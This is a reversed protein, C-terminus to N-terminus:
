IHCHTYTARVPQGRNFAPCLPLASQCGNQRSIDQKTKQKLVFFSTGYPAVRRNWHGNLSVFHGNYIGAM